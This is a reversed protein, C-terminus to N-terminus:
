RRRRGALALAATGLGLLALTAPEPIQLTINESVLDGVKNRDGDVYRAKISSEFPGTFLTGTDVELDWEWTLTGGVAPVTGLAVVEVCDFGGGADACGGANLGANVFEDWNAVGFPASTLSGSVLMAAVKISVADIGSGGGTYGSSDINLTVHFTETTATTGVPTPDYLLEYISGQCTGCNPGIPDASSTGALVGLV